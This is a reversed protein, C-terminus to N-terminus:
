KADHSSTTAKITEDRLKELQVRQEASLELDSPLDKGYSAIPSIGFATSKESREQKMQLIDERERDKGTRLLQDLYEEWADLFDAAQRPNASRHLRFESQVYTDGLGKMEGSLHVKHARLLNRYLRCARGSSM